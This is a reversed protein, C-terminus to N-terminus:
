WGADSTASFKPINRKRVTCELLLVKFQNCRYFLFSSIGYSTMKTTFRYDIRVGISTNHEFKTFNPLRSIQSLTRQKGSLVMEGPEGATAVARIAGLIQQIWGAIIYESHELNWGFRNVKRPTIASRTFVALILRLTSGITPLLRVELRTIFIQRSCM